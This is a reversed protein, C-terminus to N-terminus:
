TVTSTSGHVSNENGETPWPKPRCRCPLVRQPTLNVVIKRRAARRDAAGPLAVLSQAAVVALNYDVLLLKPLKAGPRVRTVGPAPPRAIERIEAGVILRRICSCPPTASNWTTSTRPQDSATAPARGRLPAARPSDRDGAPERRASTVTLEAAARASVVAVGATSRFSGGAEFVVDRRDGDQTLWATGREVAVIARQRQPHV